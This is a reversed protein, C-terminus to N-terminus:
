NFYWAPAKSQSIAKPSLQKTEKCIVGGSELKRILDTGYFLDAKRQRGTQNWQNNLFSQIAM